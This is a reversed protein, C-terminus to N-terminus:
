GERRESIVEIENRQERVRGVDAERGYVPWRDLTWTRGDSTVVVGPAPRDIIPLVTM